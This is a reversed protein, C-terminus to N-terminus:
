KCKLFIITKKEEFMICLAYNEGNEEFSPFSLALLWSAVGVMFLIKVFDAEYIGYGIQGFVQGPVRGWAMAIALELCVTKKLEKGFFGVLGVHECGQDM